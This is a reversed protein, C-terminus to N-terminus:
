WDARTLRLFGFALLGTSVGRPGDREDLGTKDSRQWVCGCSGLSQYPM